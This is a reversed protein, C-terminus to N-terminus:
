DYHQLRPWVADWGGVPDRCVAVVSDQEENEVGVGNDMIAKAECSAFLQSLGHLNQTWAVVVTADAPPRAQYYLENHGSYVAPLGYPSGYRHLAGAEGYNSTYLIVQSKDGASLGGYVDAVTRVYVPWGVQDRAAQNIEPIPTRGLQEVPVVPLAILVSIVANIALAAVVTARRLAVRRSIWDVTPICGAAYLFALLGFPYYVQGGGVFTIVLVVLYAV